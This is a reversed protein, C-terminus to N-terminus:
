RQTKADLHTGDHNPEFPFGYRCKHTDKHVCGHDGHRCVHMQKRKAMRYALEAETMKTPDNTASDPVDPKYPCTPDPAHPDPAYKCLTASIESTVREVDVADV